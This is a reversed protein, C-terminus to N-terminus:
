HIWQQQTLLGNRYECRFSAPRTEGYSGDLVLTAQVDVTIWKGSGAQSTEIRIAENARTNVIMNSVCNNVTDRDTQGTTGKFARNPEDSKRIATPTPVPTPTPTACATLISVMAIAILRKM